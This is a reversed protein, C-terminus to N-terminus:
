NGTAVELPFTRKQLFVSRAAFITSLGRSPSFITTYFIAWSDHLAHAPVRNAELSLFSVALISM